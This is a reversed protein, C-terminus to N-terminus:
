QQIKKKLAEAFAIRLEISERGTLTMNKRSAIDLVEQGLRIFENLRMLIDAKDEKSKLLPLVQAYRLSAAEQTRLYADLKFGYKYEFSGSVLDMDKLKQNGVNENNQAEKKEKEASTPGCGVTLFLTLSLLTMATVRKINM